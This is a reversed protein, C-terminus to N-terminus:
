VVNKRGGRCKRCVWLGYCKHATVEWRGRGSGGGVEETEVPQLQAVDFLQFGRLADAGEEGQGGAAVEPVLHALLSKVVHLLGGALLGSNTSQPVMLMGGTRQALSGYFTHLQRDSGYYVVNQVLSGGFHELVLGFVRQIDGAM